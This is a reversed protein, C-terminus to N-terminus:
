AASCTTCTACIGCDEGDILRDFHEAFWEAARRTPLFTSALLIPAERRRTLIDAGGVGEGCQGAFFRALKGQGQHDRGARLVREVGDPCPEVTDLVMGAAEVALDGRRVIADAFRRQAFAAQRRIERIM